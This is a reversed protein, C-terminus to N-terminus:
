RLISRQLTVLLAAGFIVTLLLQWNFGAAQDGLIVSGLFGGLVAGLISLIVGGLVSSQRPALWVGVIGIILGLLIWTVM